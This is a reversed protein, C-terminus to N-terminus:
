PERYIKSRHGIEVVTVVLVGDDITYVIRYDGARVRWLNASGSLKLCGAPRPNDRLGAIRRLVRARAPKDLREIQKRADPRVDVAYRPSM